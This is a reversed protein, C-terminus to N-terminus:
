GDVCTGGRDCWWWPTIERCTGARDCWAPADRTPTYEYVYFNRHVPVQKMGPAPRVAVVGDPVVGFVQGAREGSLSGDLLDQTSGCIGTARPDRASMLCLGDPAWKPKFRRTADNPWMTPEYRAVPVLLFAAGNARSGLLRAYGARPRLEHWARIQDRAQGDTGASPTRLVGLLSLQREFGDASERPPAPSPATTPAPAPREDARESALPDLVWVLAVALAAAALLAAGARATTRRRRPYRRRAAEVLAREIAPIESV